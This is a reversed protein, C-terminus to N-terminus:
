SDESLTSPIFTWAHGTSVGALSLRWCLTGTHAGLLRYRCFTHLPAVGWLPRRGGEYLAKVQRPRSPDEPGCYTEADGPRKLGKHKEVHEQARFGREGKERDTTSGTLMESATLIGSGRLLRGSEEWALDQCGPYGVTRQMAQMAADGFTAKRNRERM